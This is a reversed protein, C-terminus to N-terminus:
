RGRSAESVSVSLNEETREFSRRQETLFEENTKNQKKVRQLNEEGRNIEGEKKKRKEEERTM